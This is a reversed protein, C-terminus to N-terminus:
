RRCESDYIPNVFPLLALELAETYVGERTYRQDTLLGFAGGRHKSGVTGFVRDNAEGLELGNDLLQRVASPLPLTVTRATGLRGDRDLVAMWAFAMLQEGFTDIGGELGVWFDADPEARRANQARQVAGQRTEADSGPQDHVGSPVAIARLTIATDPFQRHFADGVARHKAPNLSAAVVRV